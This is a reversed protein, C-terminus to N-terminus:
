QNSLSKIYENYKHWEILKNIHKTVPKKTWYNVAPVLTLESVILGEEGIVIDVRCFDVGAKAAVAEALAYATHKAESKLMETSTGVSNYYFGWAFGLGTAVKIELDHQRLKEIITGRPIIKSRGSEWAVWIMEQFEMALHVKALTEDGGCVTAGKGFEAMLKGVEPFEEFIGRTKVNAKKEMQEIEKLMTEPDKSYKLGVLDSQFDKIPFQMTMIFDTRVEKVLKGDKVVFVGQSESLHSGKIVFNGKNVGNGAVGKDCYQKLKLMLESPASKLAQVKKAVNGELFRIAPWDVGAFKRKIYDSQLNMPASTCNPPAPSGWRFPQQSHWKTNSYKYWVVDPGKLQNRRFWNLLWIKDNWKSMDTKLDQKVALRWDDFSNISPWNYEHSKWDDRNYTWKPHVHQLTWAHPVTMKKDGRVHYANKLAHWVGKAVMESHPDGAGGDQQVGADSDLRDGNITPFKVFVVIFAALAPLCM